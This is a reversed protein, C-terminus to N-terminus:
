ASFANLEANGASSPALERLATARILWDALLWGAAMAVFPMAPYHFRSQGSFVMAIM